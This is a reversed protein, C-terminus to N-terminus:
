KIKGNIMIYPHKYVGTKEAVNAIEQFSRRSKGSYMSTLQSIDKELM